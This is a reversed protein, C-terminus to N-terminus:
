ICAKWLDGSKKLLVQSHYNVDGRHCKIFSEDYYYVNSCKARMKECLKEVAELPSEGEGWINNSFLSTNAYFTYQIQNITIEKDFNMNNNTFVISYKKYADINIYGKITLDRILCQIADEETEGVGINYVMADM